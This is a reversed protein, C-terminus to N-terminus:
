SMQLNFSFFCPPKRVLCHLRAEPPQQRRASLVRPRVRCLPVGEAPWRPFFDAFYFCLWLHSVCGTEFDFLREALNNQSLILIAFRCFTHLRVPSLKALLDDYTASPPALTDIVIEKLDDSLKFIAFRHKHGTKIEHFAGVVADAVAVGSSQACLCMLVHLWGLM